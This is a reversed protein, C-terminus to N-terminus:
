AAAKVGQASAWDRMEREVIWLPAAGVTLLEEHYAVPDFAGGLDAEIEARLNKLVMLGVGYSMSSWPRGLESEYVQQEYGAYVWGFEYNQIDDAKWGEYNVGLFFRCGLMRSIYNDLLGYAVLDQPFGMQRLLEGAGYEAFGEGYGYVGYSRRWYGAGTTSHYVHDLLHGGYMEHALTSIYTFDGAPYAGNLRVTNVSADDLPPQIYYGLINSDTVSLPMYNITVTHAPLAPFIAEGAARLAAIDSDLDGYTFKAATFRDHITNDKLYIQQIAAISARIESDMMEALEKLSMDTGLVDQLAIEAYQKGNKYYCFGADNVGTGRLAEMGDVIDRYAKFFYTNLYDTNRQKYASREADTLGPFADVRTNFSEILEHSETNALFANCQKQLADILADSLGLGQEARDRELAICEGAYRDFDKILLLYKDIDGKERFPFDMLMFPLNVQIGNTTNFATDYYYYDKYQLDTTLSYTMLEYLYREDGSLNNAKVKRLKQLEGECFAMYASHEEASVTGLTVEDMGYGASAADTFSLHNSITDQTVSRRFVAEEVLHVIESDTMGATDGGGAPGCGALSLILAAALLFAPIKRM